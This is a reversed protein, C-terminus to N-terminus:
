LFLGNPKYFWPYLVESETLQCAQEEVVLGSVCLTVRAGGVAGESRGEETVQGGGGPSAAEPAQTSGDKRAPLGALRLRQLAGWQAAIKLRGAGSCRQVPHPSAATGTVCLSEQLADCGSGM